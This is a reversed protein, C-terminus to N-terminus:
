RRNFEVRRNTSWSDEDSGSTAPRTEGFGLAEVKAASVGLTTLYKKVSEARRNSLQLNYEETGREDAHGELTVQGSSSKVCEAIQELRARGDPSLTAENFGFRVPEWSCQASASTTVCAGEQCGQGSGCDTDVTCAPVCRGSECKGTRCDSGTTCEAEVCKGAECNKGEGCESGTPTCEPKPVCKNAQCVFGDKCNADTACEQCTGQVCVEGQEQCHDDSECKPYTPPCGTLFVLLGTAGALLTLRRM